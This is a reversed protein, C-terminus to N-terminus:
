LAWGDAYSGFGRLDREDEDTDRRTPKEVAPYAERRYLSSDRPDDGGPGEVDEYRRTM